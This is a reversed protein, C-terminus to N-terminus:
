NHFVKVQIENVCLPPAKVSKQEM